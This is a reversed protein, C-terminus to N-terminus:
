YQRPPSPHEEPFSSPLGPPFSGALPDPFSSPLANAPFRASPLRSGRNVPSVRYHSRRYRRHHRAPYYQMREARDSRRKRVATATQREARRRAAERAQQAQTDRNMKHLWARQAAIATQNPPSPTPLVLTKEAGQRRPMDSFHTTGSADTWTYVPIGAAVAVAPPVLLLMGGVVLAVSLLLRGIYKM